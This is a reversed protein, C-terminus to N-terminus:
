LVVAISLIMHDSIVNWDKSDKGNEAEADLKEEM